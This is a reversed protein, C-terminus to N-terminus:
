KRKREAVKLSHYISSDLQSLLLLGTDKSEIYVYTLNTNYSNSTSETTINHSNVKTV